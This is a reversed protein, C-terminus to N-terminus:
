PFSVYVPQKVTKKGLSILPVGGFWRMDSLFFLSFRPIIETGSHGLCKVGCQTHIEESFPSLKLFFPISFFEWSIAVVNKELYM